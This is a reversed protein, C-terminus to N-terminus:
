EIELINNLKEKIRRDENSEITRLRLFSINYKTFIENKIEDRKSQKTGKKHYEYGDTEIALITKKDMKSYIVFDVHTNINNVYKLERENLKDTVNIIERLPVHVAIDLSNYPEEELIYKIKDYTLHESLYKISNNKKKNKLYELKQKYNAKYLLDFISKVNSNVIEFNNYKVYKMFDSINSNIRQEEYPVVIRLYKKARSIAVNIMNINDVFDSIKNDVTTLIIAEKERGQFKHITDIDIGEFAENELLAFKQEKYPSIIGIEKRECEKLLEPM